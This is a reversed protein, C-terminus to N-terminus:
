VAVQAVRDLMAKDSNLWKGKVSTPRENLRVSVALPDCDLVHADHILWSLDLDATRLSGLVSRDTNRDFQAPGLALAVRGIRAEPVNLVVLTALFLERHLRGLEAFGTKVLGPLFLCYRTEDHCFLVCQRRDYTYLHAHWSGLPSTETLPTASVSPLKAALKQTCHIIM